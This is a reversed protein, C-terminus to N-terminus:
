FPVAGDDNRAGEDIWQRVRSIEASSLLSAGSREAVKVILSRDADFPIVVEGLNSGRMLSEWSGLDLGAEEELLPAFKEQLLPRIHRSFAIAGGGGMAAQTSTCRARITLAASLSRRVCRWYRQM